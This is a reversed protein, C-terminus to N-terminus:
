NMFPLEDIFANPKGVGGNVSRSDRIDDYPVGDITIPKKKKKPNNLKEHMECLAALKRPTCRWFTRPSM